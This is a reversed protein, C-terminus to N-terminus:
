WYHIGVYNSMFDHRNTNRMFLTNTERGKPDAKRLCINLVAIATVTRAARLAARVLQSARSSIEPPIIFVQDM